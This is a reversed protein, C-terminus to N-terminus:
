SSMGHHSRPVEWYRIQWHEGKGKRKKGGEQAKKWGWEVEERGQKLLQIGWSLLQCYIKAHVKFCDASM